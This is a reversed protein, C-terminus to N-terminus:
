SMAAILDDDFEESSLVIAEEQRNPFMAVAYGDERLGKTWRAQWDTLSVSHPTCDAWDGKIWAKAAEESPWVPVCEENDCDLLVSGGNGVLIWLEQQEVAQTLLYDYREQPSQTELQALTVASSSM